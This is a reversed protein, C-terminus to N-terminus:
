QNIDWIICTPTILNWIYRCTQITQSGSLCLWSEAMRQFQYRGKSRWWAVPAKLTKWWEHQISYWCTFKSISEMEYFLKMNHLKEPRVQGLRVWGFNVKCKTNNITFSCTFKEGSALMLSSGHSWFSKAPSWYRWYSWFLALEAQITKTFCLFSM